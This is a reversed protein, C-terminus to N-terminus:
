GWLPDGSPKREASMKDVLMKLVSNGIESLRTDGLLPLLRNDLYHEYNEISAPKLPRRRGESNIPRNGVSM